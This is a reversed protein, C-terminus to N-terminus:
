YVFFTRFISLISNVQTCHLHSSVLSRISWHFTALQSLDFHGLISNVMFRHHKHWYNFNCMRTFCTLWIDNLLANSIPWRAVCAVAALWLWSKLSYLNGTTSCKWLSRQFGNFFCEFANTNKATVFCIGTTYEASRPRASFLMVSQDVCLVHLPLWDVALIEFFSLKSFKWLSHQFGTFCEFAKTNKATEFCIGITRINPRGHYVAGSRM